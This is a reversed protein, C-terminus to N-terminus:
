FPRPTCTQEIKQSLIDVVQQDMQQMGLLLAEHEKRDAQEFVLHKVHDRKDHACGLVAFLIITSLCTAQWINKGM